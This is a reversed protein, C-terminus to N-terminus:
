LEKWSELTWSINGDEWEEYDDYMDAMEVNLEKMMVAMEDEDTTDEPIEIYVGLTNEYVGCMSLRVELQLEKM